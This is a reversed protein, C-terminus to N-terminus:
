WVKKPVVKVDYGKVVLGVARKDAEEMTLFVEPRYVYGDYLSSAKVRRKPQVFTMSRLWRGGLVASRYYVHYVYDSM